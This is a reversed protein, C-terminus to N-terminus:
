IDYKGDASYELAKSLSVTSGKLASLENSDMYM